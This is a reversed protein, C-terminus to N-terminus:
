QSVAGTADPEMAFAAAFLARTYDSKPHSCSRTRRARKSSRARDCSSSTSPRARARSQSRPQHLSLRSQAQAQLDRLLDVIQAQVSMDLASTPEDLVVFKPELAMARAIAIRQRQGGSFEHPYRDMSRRISAPMSCACPRRNRAASRLRPEQKAREPRRRRDRGGVHAAVALWLPGSLRDAHRPAVAADGQLRLGDIREASIPSRTGRSRILRLLALGLTTKGSGSEGVIGITEGERLTLSVGDVAKVAGVTRRFFGRKIPFHVRLDQAELIVRAAPDVPPPEGKPEAALLAKTYPHQPAAFISEVTAPRSSGATRCSPSMM